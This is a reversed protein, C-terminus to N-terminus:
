LRRVPKLSRKGPSLEGITSVFPESTFKILYNETENVVYLLVMHAMRGDVKKGTMLDANSIAELANLLIPASALTITNSAAAIQIANLYNTEIKKKAVYADSDAIIEQTIAQLQQAKFFREPTMNGTAQEIGLLNDDMKKIGIRAATGCNSLALLWIFSFFIVSVVLFIKAFGNVSNM